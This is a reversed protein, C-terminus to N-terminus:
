FSEKECFSHNAMLVMNGSSVFGRKRYYGETNAGRSTLLYINVVGIESLANELAKLLASGFGNNQESKKVCFEQIQFHTGNYYQEKQGWIIGKLGNDAYLAKGIFTDTKMMNEIRIQATEKTWSDHWPEANFVSVFLEAYEAIHSLDMDTINRNSRIQARVKDYFSKYREVSTKIALESEAYEILGAADVWKYETTEGEQLVVSNKDCDVRAVYSYILSPSRSSFTIKILEFRDCLIGTEEYLERKACEEPGEGLQASGGASAEWYGPYVDKDMHRKTLLYSGDCHQVLIDSVLHYRGEPIDRFNGHRREWVEGTRNGDKDYLDWLEMDM